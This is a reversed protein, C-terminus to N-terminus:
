SEAQLETWQSSYRTGLELCLPNTTPQRAMDTWEPLQGVSFDDTYYTTGM